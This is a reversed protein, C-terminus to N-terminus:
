GGGPPVPARPAVCGGPPLPRPTEPHRGASERVSQSPQRGSRGRQAECRQGLVTDTPRSASCLLRQFRHRKLQRQSGRGRVRTGSDVSYLPDSLLLSRLLPDYTLGLLSLVILLVKNKISKFSAGPFFCM